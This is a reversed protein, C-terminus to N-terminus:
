ISKPPRLLEVPNSAPQASSWNKHVGRICLACVKFIPISDVNTLMIRTASMAVWWQSKGVFIVYKQWILNRGVLQHMWRFRTHTM